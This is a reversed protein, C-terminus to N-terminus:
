IKTEDFDQGVRRKPLEVLQSSVPKESLGRCWAFRVSLAFAHWHGAPFLWGKVIQMAYCIWVRSMMSLVFAALELKTISVRRLSAVGGYILLMAHACEFLWM